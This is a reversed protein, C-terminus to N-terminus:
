PLGAGIVGADGGLDDHGILEGLPLDVLAIEAALFEDFAHPFPLGFGAAGDDVLQAPEAARRIPATLPERHILPQRSRHPADKDREMALPQDIAVLPQDIPVGLHVRHDGVQLDLAALGLARQPVDAIRDLAHGSTVEDDRRGARLRHEPVGPHRDMGLIRAIGLEDTLRHPQRQDSAQNRDDGVLVGVGFHAAARDLDRRRMIEVIELDAPPVTEFQDVDEIAVGM